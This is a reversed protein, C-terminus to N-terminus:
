RTGGYIEAKLEDIKVKYEDATTIFLASESVTDAVMACLLNEDHERQLRKLEALQRRYRYSRLNNRILNMM